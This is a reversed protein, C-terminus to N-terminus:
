FRWDPDPRSVFSLEYRDIIAQDLDAPVVVYTHYGTMPKSTQIFVADDIRAWSASMPRLPAGYVVCSRLIQGLMFGHQELLNVMKPSHVARSQAESLLTRHSVRQADPYQRYVDEKADDLTVVGMLETITNSGEPLVMPVFGDYEEHRRITFMAPMEFAGIALDDEISSVVDQEDDWWGPLSARGTTTNSNMPNGFRMWRM